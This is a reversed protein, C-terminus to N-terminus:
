RLSTLLREAADTATKICSPIGLGHMGAGALTLGPLANVAREAKLVRAEHGPEYQPFGGVWRTVDAAFPRRKIGVSAQLDSHASAIVEDDSMEFARADSIRGASARFIVQGPRQLDPWKSTAFSCATLFRHDVAPVLFGSGELHHGVSASTYALRIMAVSAYRIEGLARAAEPALRQLLGATVPTPTTIVVGDATITDGSSTMVEWGGGTRQALAAVPTDTRIDVDAELLQKTLSDILTAMGNQTAYFLPENNTPTAKQARVKRKAGVLLSPRTAGLAAIQPATSALSLRNATGANIGGILPEVLRQLVEGGLRKGVVDQLTPDADRNGIFSPLVYDAGARIVGAPSVIGSRAIARLSTPVGLVTSKPLRHLRGRSWLYSPKGSPTILQGRLGLEACLRIGAPHRALFADPGTDVPVDAFQSTQIKGGLVSDAELVTIRPRLTRANRDRAYEPRSLAWAAALGSIGGGIVVIHPQDASTM